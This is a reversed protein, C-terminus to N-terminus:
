GRRQREAQRRSGDAREPSPLAVSRPDRPAGPVPPTALRRKVAAAVEAVTVDALCWAPQHCRRDYHCGCGDFRSVTVDEPAFPGNRAPDTPGFLAVVPTGVATAVHLPGTDGSIVLSAARALAV